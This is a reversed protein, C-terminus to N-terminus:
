PWATASTLATTLLTRIKELPFRELRRNELLKLVFEPPDLLPKDLATVTPPWLLQDNYFDCDYNCFKEPSNNPCAAVCAAVRIRITDNISNFRVLWWGTSDKLMFSTSEHIELDQMEWQPQNAIEAMAKTM